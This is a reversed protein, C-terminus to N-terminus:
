VCQFLQSYAVEAQRFPVFSLPSYGNPQKGPRGFKSHAARRCSRRGVQLTRHVSTKSSHVDNRSDSGDTIADEEAVRPPTTFKNKTVFTLPRRGLTDPDEISELPDGHTLVVARYLKEALRAKKEKARTTKSVHHEHKADRKRRPKNYADSKARKSLQATVPGRSQPLKKTSKSLFDEVTLLTPPTTERVHSPISSPPFDVDASDPLVAIDPIMDSLLPGRADEIDVMCQPLGVTVLDRLDVHESVLETRKRRRKIQGSTPICPFLLTWRTSVVFGAWSAM